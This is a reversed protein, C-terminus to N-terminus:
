HTSTDRGSMDEFTARVLDADKRAVSASVKLVEALGTRIPYLGRTREQRIFPHKGHNRRRSGEVFINARNLGHQQVLHEIARDAAERVKLLAM